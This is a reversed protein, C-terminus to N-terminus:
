TAAAAERVQRLKEERADDHAKQKALLEEAQTKKAELTAHAKLDHQHKLERESSTLDTVVSDHKHTAKNLAKAASAEQKSLKENVKDAKHASKEAKIASKETASVDKLTHKVQHAEAKAEHLIQKELHKLESPSSPLTTAPLTTAAGERLERIQNKREEAHALQAQLAEAARAKKADLEATLREDEQRLMQPSITQLIGTAPLFRVEADREAGRLDVLVANHQHTAKNLKKLTATETPPVLQRAHHVKQAKAKYKETSQVDKLAHKVESDERKAEKNFQKELKKIAAPSSPVSLTSM